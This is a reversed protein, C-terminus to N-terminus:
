VGVLSTFGMTCPSSPIRHGNSLTFTSIPQVVSPHLETGQEPPAPEEQASFPIPSSSRVHVAPPLAPCLIKFVWQPPHPVSFCSCNPLLNFAADGASSPSQVTGWTNTLCPGLLQKDGDQEEAMPARSQGALMAPSLMVMGRDQCLSREGGARSPVSSGEVRAGDAMSMLQLSFCRQTLHLKLGAAPPSADPLYSALCPQLTSSFNTFTLFLSQLVAAAGLRARSEAPPQGLSPAALQPQPLDLM